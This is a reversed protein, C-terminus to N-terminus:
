SGTAEAKLDLFYEMMDDRPDNKPALGLIKELRTAQEAEQVGWKGSAVEKEDEVTLVWRLMLVDRGHRVRFCVEPDAGLPEVQIRTGSKVSHTEAGDFKECEFDDWKNPGVQRYRRIIAGDVDVKMEANAGFTEKAKYTKAMDARSYGRRGNQELLNRM